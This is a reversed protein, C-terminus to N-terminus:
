KAVNGLKTRKYVEIENGGWPREFEKTSSNRRLGKGLGQFEANNPKWGQSQVRRRTKIGLYREPSPSDYIDPDSTNTYPVSLTVNVHSYNSEYSKM